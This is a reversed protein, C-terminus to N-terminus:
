FILIKNNTIINNSIYYTIGSGVLQLENFVGIFVDTCSLATVIDNIEDEKNNKNRPDNVNESNKINVMYTYNNKNMFDIISNNLIDECLIFTEIKPNIHEKINDIIKNIIEKNENNENHIGRTDIVNLKHNIIYKNNFYCIFHIHKILENFLSIDLTNIWGNDNYEPVNKINFYIDNEIYNNYIEDYSKDDFSYNYYLQKHNGPSPDNVIINSLYTNSPIIHVNTLMDTIDIVNEKEGYFIGNIKFQTEYKDVLLINYKKLYENMKKLDFYYNKFVIIKRNKYIAYIITNILSFIDDIIHNNNLNIFYVNKM